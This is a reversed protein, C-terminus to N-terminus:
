GNRDDRFDRVTEGFEARVVRALVRATWGNEFGRNNGILCRGDSGIAVIKHADIWRGKVKSLVIDGVRYEREVVYTNLTGSELIPLMSNGFCKMQGTGTENLAELLREQKTM